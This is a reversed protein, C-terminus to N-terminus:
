FTKSIKVSGPCVIGEGGGVGGGICFESILAQNIVRASMALCDLAWAVVIM